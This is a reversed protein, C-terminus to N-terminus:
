RGLEEEREPVERGRVYEEVAQMVAHIRNTLSPVPEPTEISIADEPEQGVEDGLEAAREELSARATEYVAEFVAEYQEAEEETMGEQPSGIEQLRGTRIEDEIFDEVAQGLFQPESMWRETHLGRVFADVSSAFLTEDGGRIVDHAVDFQIFSELVERGTRDAEM